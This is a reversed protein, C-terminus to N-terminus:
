IHELKFYYFFFCRRSAPEEGLLEIEEMSGTKTCANTGQEKHSLFFYFLQLKGLIERAM